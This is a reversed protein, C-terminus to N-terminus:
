VMLCIYLKYAHIFGIFLNNSCVFDELTYCIVYYFYFTKNIMKNGSFLNKLELTKISVKFIGVCALSYLVSGEHFLYLFNNYKITSMREVKKNIIWYCLFQSIAFM